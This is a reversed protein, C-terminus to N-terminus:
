EVFFAWQQQKNRVLFDGYNMVIQTRTSWVTDHFRVVVEETSRSVSVIYGNPQLGKDIRREDYVTDGKRPGDVKM